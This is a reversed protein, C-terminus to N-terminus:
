NFQKYKNKNPSNYNYSQVISRKTPTISYSYTALLHYILSFNLNNRLIKWFLHTILFSLKKMYMYTYM